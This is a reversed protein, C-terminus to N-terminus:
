RCKKIFYGALFDKYNMYSDGPAPGSLNGLDGVVPVKVFMVDNTDFVPMITLNGKIKKGAPTGDDIKAYNDLWGAPDSIFNQLENLDAQAPNPKSVAASVRAIAEGLLPGAQNNKLALFKPQANSM